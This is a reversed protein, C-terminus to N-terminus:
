AASAVSTPASSSERLERHGGDHALWPSEQVIARSPTPHSEMQNFVAILLAADGVISRVVDREFIGTCAAVTLSASSKYDSVSVHSSAAM